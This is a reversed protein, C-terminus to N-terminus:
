KKEVMWTILGSTRRLILRKRQGQRGIGKRSKVFKEKKKEVIRLWEQKEEKAKRKTKEKKEGM